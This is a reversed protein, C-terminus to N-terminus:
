LFVAPLLTLTLVAATIMTFSTLGGFRRIHQGGALLLVAFGIGVAFANIIIARGTTELTRNVVTFASSSAQMERQFRSTFHVA